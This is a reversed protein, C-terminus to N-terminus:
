ACVYMYVYIYISVHMCVYMYGVERLCGRKTDCCSYALCVEVFAEFLNQALELNRPGYKWTELNCIEPGM